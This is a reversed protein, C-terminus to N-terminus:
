AAVEEATTGYEIARARGKAALQDARTIRHNLFAEIASCVAPTPMAMYERWASYERGLRDTVSRFERRVEVSWLRRADVATADRLDTRDMRRFSEVGGIDDIHKLLEQVPHFWESRFRYAKFQRHLMQEMNRGGEEVGLIRLEYPSSHQLSRLRWNVHGETHGIKIPGGEGSQLFYIM